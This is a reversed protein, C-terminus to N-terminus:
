IWFPNRNIMLKETWPYGSSKSPGYLGTKPPLKKQLTKTPAIESIKMAYPFISKIALVEEALASELTYFGFSPTDKMCEIYILQEINPKGMTRIVGQGNWLECVEHSTSSMLEVEVAARNERARGIISKSWSPGAVRIAAVIATLIGLPAM